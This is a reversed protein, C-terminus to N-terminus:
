ASNNDKLLENSLARTKRGGFAFKDRDFTYGNTTDTTSNKNRARNKRANM